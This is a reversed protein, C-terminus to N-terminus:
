SIKKDLFGDPLFERSFGWRNDGLLSSYGDQRFVASLLYRGKYDYNLRGFYSLIRYDSHGSDISRKGEGNDTLSLDAFDDTPAGSGSASFSRSYRDFYEMGLMVAVNHDKAFTQNYNLVVNYTQSFDRSFSASSSRTRVFQGPTNEYDRTFSEALSESYYWNATGKVSLNKLIDIQFAQVMTFKDSQNFNWWKDPQYNQNGDGAVPGLTPNGDEDQFRVTPPTSMIRGFYNGESTQSGPMNKWNARNYNFNSSSTLWDTIKYSANLVFSYREYFTKIPLGEQRNYGLGAYYTGKDNGGSMNINYDQSIAPNNLNYDAPNTDKYLITKSPDLPDPMEQWGKQLLYANDATKNM